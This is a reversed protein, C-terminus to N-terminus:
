THTRLAWLFASYLLTYRYDQCQPPLSLCIGPVPQGVVRAQGAIALKMSLVQRLVWSPDTRRLRVLKGM